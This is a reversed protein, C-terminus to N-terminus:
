GAKLTVILLWLVGVVLYATRKKLNLSLEAFGAGLLFILWFSLLDIASLLSFFIKGTQAPDLFFAPPSAVPTKLDSKGSASCLSQHTLFPTGALKGLSGMGDDLM